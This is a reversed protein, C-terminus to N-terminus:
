EDQTRCLTPCFILGDDVFGVPGLCRDRIRDCPLLFYAAAVSWHWLASM